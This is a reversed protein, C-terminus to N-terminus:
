QDYADFDETSRVTVKGFFEEAIQADTKGSPQHLPRVIIEVEVEQNNLEPSLPIFIGGDKVWERLRIATM